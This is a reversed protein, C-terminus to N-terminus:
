MHMNYLLYVLIIYLKYDIYLAQINRYIFNNIKYHIIQVLVIPLYTKRIYEITCKHIILM